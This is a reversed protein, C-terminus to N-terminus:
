GQGEGMWSLPENYSQRVSQVLSCESKAGGVGVRLPLSRRPANEAVSQPLQPAVTEICAGSLM